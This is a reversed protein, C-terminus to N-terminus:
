KDWFNNTELETRLGDVTDGAWFFCDFMTLVHNLDFQSLETGEITSLYVGVFFAGTTNFKKQEGTLVVTNGGHDDFDIDETYGLKELAQKGLHLYTFMKETRKTWTDVLNM